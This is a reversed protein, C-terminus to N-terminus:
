YNITGLEDLSSFSYRKKQKEMEDPTGCPDSNSGM